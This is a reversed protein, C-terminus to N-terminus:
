GWPPPHPVALYPPQHDGFPQPLYSQVRVMPSPPAALVAPVPGYPPHALPRVSVPAATDRLAPGNVAEALADVYREEARDHLGWVHWVTGRWEAHVIDYLRGRYRFERKSIRTFPGGPSRLESRPITLHEASARRGGAEKAASLRRNMQQRAHHRGLLAGIMGVQGGLLALMLFATLARRM